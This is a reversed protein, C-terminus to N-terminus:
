DFLGANRAQKKSAICIDHSTRYRKRAFTKLRLM